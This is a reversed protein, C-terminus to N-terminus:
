FTHAKRFPYKMVFFSWTHLIQLGGHLPPGLGIAGIAGHYNENAKNSNVMKTHMVNLTHVIAIFLKKYASNYVNIVKINM